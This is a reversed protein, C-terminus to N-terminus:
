AFARKLLLLIANTEADYCRVTLLLFPAFKAGRLILTCPHYLDDCVSNHSSVSQHHKEMSRCRFRMFNQTFTAVLLPQTLRLKSSRLKNVKPTPLRKSWLNSAGNLHVTGPEGDKYSFLTQVPRVFMMGVMMIPFLSITNGAMWLVLLNLPLQKWPGLAISWGM